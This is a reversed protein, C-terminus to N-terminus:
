EFGGNNKIAKHIEKLKNSIKDKSDIKSISILHQRYSNWENNTIKNNQQILAGALLGFKWSLIKVVLKHRKEYILHNEFLILEREEKPLKARPQPM